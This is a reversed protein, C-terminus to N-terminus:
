PSREGVIMESSVYADDAVSYVLKLVSGHPINTVTKNLVFAEFANIFGGHSVITVPASASSNRLYNKRLQAAFEQARQSVSVMTEKRIAKGKKSDWEGDPWWQTSPLVASFDFTALNISMKTLRDKLEPLEHGVDGVSCWRETILPLVKAPLDLPKKHAFVYNATQLARTLPSSFVTGGRLKDVMLVGLKERISVTQVLGNPTLQPDPVLETWKDERELANDVSECHRVFFVEQMASYERTFVFVLALAAVLLLCTCIGFILYRSSRRNCRSFLSAM